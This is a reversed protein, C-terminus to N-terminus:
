EINQIQERVKEIDTKLAIGTQSTRLDNAKSLITNAERNMEQAMFDLRRGIEGGKILAQKMTVIHNRLRVTEEDTCLKDSYIVLEAALRSDDIQTDAKVESLKALLREKYEAIIEPYRKEVEDVNLLMNDLKGILDSKLAEGEKERAEKFASAAGCVAEKIIVFLEEEDDSIDEETIVDPFAALKSVTMDNELGFDDAMARFYEMYKGALEKNYCLGAAAYSEDKYTINVDVKGRVMYATLLKRIDSEFMNFRRPMHVSLDLYRHNVSKIEVTIKKGEAQVEYRGFGTMSTIM